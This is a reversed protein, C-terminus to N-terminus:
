FSSGMKIVLRLNSNIIKERAAKGNTRTRQGAKRNKSWKQMTTFLEQEEKKKAFLLLREEEEKKVVAEKNEEEKEEDEQQKDEEM